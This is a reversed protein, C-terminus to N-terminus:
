SQEADLCGDRVLSPYLSGIRERAQVRRPSPSPRVRHPTTSEHAESHRFPSVRGLRLARGAREGESGRREVRERWGESRVLWRARDDVGRAAPHIGSELQIGDTGDMEPQTGDMTRGKGTTSDAGAGTSGEGTTAAVAGAM